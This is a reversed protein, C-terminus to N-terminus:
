HDSLATKELTQRHDAILGDISGGGEACARQLVQNLDGPWTVILQNKGRQDCM